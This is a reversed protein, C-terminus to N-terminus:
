GHMGHGAMGTAHFSVRKMFEYSIGLADGIAVGYVADRLNLWSHREIGIAGPRHVALRHKGWRLWLGRPKGGSLWSALKLVQYM